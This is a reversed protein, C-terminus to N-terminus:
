PFSSGERHNCKEQVIQMGKFVLENTNTHLLASISVIDVYVTYVIKSDHLHYFDKIGNFEYTSKIM